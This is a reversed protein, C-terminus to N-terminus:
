FICLFGFIKLAGICTFAGNQYWQRCCNVVKNRYISKLETDIEVVVRFHNLEYKDFQLHKTKMPSWVPISQLAGPIWEPVLHIRM